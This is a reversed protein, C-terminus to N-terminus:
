FLNYSLKILPLIISWVLIGALMIPLTSKKDAYFRSALFCGLPISLLIPTLASIGILGYKNKINIFRRNGKTFVNKKKKKPLIRNIQINIWGSTYYFIVVGIFGGTILTIVIQLYSYNNIPLLMYGVAMAFKTGAFLLLSALEIIQSLEM